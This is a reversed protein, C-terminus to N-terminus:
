TPSSWALDVDRRVIHPTRLTDLTHTKARYPSDPRTGRRQERGVRGASALPPTTVTDYTQATAPCNPFGASRFYIAGSFNSTHRADQTSGSTCRCLEQGIGTEGSTIRTLTVPVAYPRCRSIGLETRLGFDGTLQSTDVNEENRSIVVSLIGAFARASASPATHDPKAVQPNGPKATYNQSIAVAVLSPSSIQMVKPLRSHPTKVNATVHRIPSPHRLRQLESQIGLQISQLTHGTTCHQSPSSAVSIRGALQSNQREVTAEVEQAVPVPYSSIVISIRGPFKVTTTSRAIAMITLRASHNRDVSIRGTLKLAVVAYKFSLFLTTVPADQLHKGHQAAGISDVGLGSEKSGGLWKAM